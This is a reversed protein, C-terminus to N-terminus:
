VPNCENKASKIDAYGTFYLLFIAVVLRKEM